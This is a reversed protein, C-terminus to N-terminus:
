GDQDYEPLKNFINVLSSSLGSLKELIGQIPTDAAIISANIQMQQNVLDNANTAQQSVVNLLDQQQESASTNASNQNASLDTVLQSIQSQYNQTSKQISKNTNEATVYQMCASFVDNSQEPNIIGGVIMELPNCSVNQVHKMMLLQTQQYKIYLYYVFMVIIIIMRNTSDSFDEM